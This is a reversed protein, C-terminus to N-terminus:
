VKREHNGNKEEEKWNLWDARRQAWKESWWDVELQQCKTDYDTKTAM